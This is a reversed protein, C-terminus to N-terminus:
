RNRNRKWTPRAPLMTPPAPLLTPPTTPPTTPSTHPPLAAGASLWSWSASPVSLFPVTASGLHVTLCLHVSIGAYGVASIVGSGAEAGYHVREQAEKASHQRSRDTAEATFNATFWCQQQPTTSTPFGTQRMKPCTTRHAPCHSRRRRSRTTQQPHSTTETM